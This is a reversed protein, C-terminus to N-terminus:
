WTFRTDVTILYATATSHHRRSRDDFEVVGDGHRHGVSRRGAQVQNVPDATGAEVVQRV